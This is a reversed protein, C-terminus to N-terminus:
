EKLLRRLVKGVNNKPLDDVIKITKPQKYGTLYDRCHTKIEDISLQLNNIVVFLTVAENGDKDKEGVVAAEFVGELKLVAEEIENPYVNFGSVLIMDKKRDVIRLLGENDFLGIDGTKFWGQDFAAATETANNWYESMVQPGKVQVEGVCNQQEVIHNFENVLRVDTSPMPLGVAGTHKSLNYPNVSVIATTETLGYGEIITNGTINKWDEAIKHQTPMGGAITFKLHSFDVNVIKSHHLLANFLTNVGTISTFQYKCLTDIFADIDRPNEILLNSDGRKLFFFCNVNLAFAHYMPLATVLLETGQSLCAGFTEEVQALSSAMNRHSMAVGKPRGTTGGTYLIFATDNISIMPRTYQGKEGIKLAAHYDCTNSLTFKPVMRKIYAVTFNVVKRKLSPLGDGIKTLVVHEINTEQIISQLTHAFNEAIFIAKAGSDNLQHKLEFPTSLPNVTVVILGARLIGLLTIPYQLLNPMMVAVRDGKKLSTVHQLYSAIHRSKEELESFTLEHGMNIFATHELYREFTDEVMDVLNILTSENIEASVGPPYKNLWPKYM